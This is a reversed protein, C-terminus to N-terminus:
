KDKDLKKYLNDLKQQIIQVQKKDSYAELKMMMLTKQLEEIQKKIEKNM